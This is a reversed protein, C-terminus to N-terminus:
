GKKGAARWLLAGLLGVLLAALLTWQHLVSELWNLYIIKGKINAPYVRGVAEVAHTPRETLFLYQLSFSALGMGTMVAMLVVSALKLRRTKKSTNM